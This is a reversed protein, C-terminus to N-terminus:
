VKGIMQIMVKLNIRQQIINILGISSNTPREETTGSPIKIAAIELM